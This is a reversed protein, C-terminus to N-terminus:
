RHLLMVTFAVAQEDSATLTVYNTPNESYTFFSAGDKTLLNVVQQSPDSTLVLKLQVPTPLSLIPNTLGSVEGEYPSVYLTGGDMPTQLEATASQQDAACVYNKFTFPMAQDQNTAWSLVPAENFATYTLYTAGAQFFVVAGSQLQQLISSGSAANTTQM